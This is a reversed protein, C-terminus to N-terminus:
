DDSAAVRVDFRLEAVFYRSRPHQPCFRCRPRLARVRGIAQQVSPDFDQVGFSVRTVGLLALEHAFAPTLNRPDLEIAHEIAPDFTVVDLLAELVSAMGDTELISPTGGGWHLRAATPSASVHQGVLGIETKLLRAYDAIIEDRRVLKAYCGCYHCLARCYPVHIYLSVPSFGHFGHRTIKRGSLM